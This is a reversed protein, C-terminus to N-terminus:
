KSHGFCALPFDPNFTHLLRLPVELRVGRRTKFFLPDTRTLNFKAGLYLWWNDINRILSVYRM